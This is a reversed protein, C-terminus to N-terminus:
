LDSLRQKSGLQHWQFEENVYFGESRVIARPDVWGTISFLVLLMVQPYLRGTSLASLRSVDHTTTVFDPFRLKKSGEPRRRAQLPVAECKGKVSSQKSKFFWHKIHPLIRFESANAFNRCIVTLKVGDTRGDTWMAGVLRIKVFNPMQINKSFADLFNLNLNGRARIVPVKCSSRHVIKIMNLQRLTLFTATLIQLSFWFVYKTNLFM